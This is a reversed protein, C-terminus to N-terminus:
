NSVEPNIEAKDVAGSQVGWNKLIKAYVGDDILKQLAEQTAETMATDGKKLAIGQLVIDTDKGLQELQGSTQKIAYGTVQSDAYFVDVKGTIVATAADTQQKYSQVDVPKKGKAKCQASLTDTAEQEEITGTQVGVKVGCMDDAKIKSPNGKKVAFATGAKFSTVFDVSGMREKTITFSSLGADYKTGIAPIISDFSASVMEAKLGMVKAIAKSLDVDYGIPTKGDEDMFEGPAYTTEMGVTLKGDQAVSAPVKAAIAPDKKIGSVDFAAPHSSTQSKGGQSAGEEQDTTGCAGLSVMLTLSLAAALFTRIKEMMKGIRKRQGILGHGRTGRKEIIHVM